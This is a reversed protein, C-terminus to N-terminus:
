KDLPVTIAFGPAVSPGPRNKRLMEENFNSGPAYGSGSRLPLTPNSFGASFEPEGPALPAPKPITVDQSPVPAPEFRLPPPPPPGFLQMKGPLYTQGMATAPLLSLLLLLRRFPPM